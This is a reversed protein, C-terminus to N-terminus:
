AQTITAVRAKLATNTTQLDINKQKIDALQQQLEDPSMSTQLAQLDLEYGAKKAAEFARETAAFTAEIAAQTTQTHEQAKQATALSVKLAEGATSHVAQAISQIESDLAIAEEMVQIGEAPDLTDDQVATTEAELPAIEDPTLSPEIETETETETPADLDITDEGDLSAPKEEEIEAVIPIDEEIAEEIDSPLEELTDPLSDRVEKDADEESLNDNPDDINPQSLEISDTDENPEIKNESPIDIAEESESLKDLDGLADMLESGQTSEDIVENTLIDNPMEDPLDDLMAMMEQTAADDKQTDITM